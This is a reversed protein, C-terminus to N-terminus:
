LQGEDLDIRIVADAEMLCDSFDQLLEGLCEENLGSFYCKTLISIAIDDDQDLHLYCGYDYLATILALFRNQIFTSLNKSLEYSFSVELFNNQSDFYVLAEREGPLLFAASYSEEQIMQDYLEYGKKSFTEKLLNLRTDFLNTL